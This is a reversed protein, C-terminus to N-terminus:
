RMIDLRYVRKPKEDGDDSVQSVRGARPAELDMSRAM